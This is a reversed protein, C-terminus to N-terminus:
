RPHFVTKLCQPLNSTQISRSALLGKRILDNLAESISSCNRGIIGYKKIERCSVKGQRRAADLIEVQLESLDFKTIETESVSSIYELIASDSFGPIQLSGTFEKMQARKAKIMRRISPKHKDQLRVRVNDGFNEELSKNLSNLLFRALAFFDKNMQSTEFELCFADHLRVLFLATYPDTPRGRKTTYEDFNSWDLQHDSCESKELVSNLYCELAKLRRHLSHIVLDGPKGTIFKHAESILSDIQVSEIFKKKDGKYTASKITKKRLAIIKENMKDAGSKLEAIRNDTQVISKSLMAAVPTIVQARKENAKDSVSRLNRSRLDCLIASKQRKIDVPSRKSRETKRNIQLQYARDEDETSFLYDFQSFFQDLEEKENFSFEANEIFDITSLIERFKKCSFLVKKIEIKLEQSRALLCYEHVKQAYQPFEKLIFFALCPESIFVGDDFGNNDFYIPILEKMYEHFKSSIKKEKKKEDLWIKWNERKLNLKFDFLNRYTESRIM